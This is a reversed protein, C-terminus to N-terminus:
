RPYGTPSRTPKEGKVQIDGNAESMDGLGLAVGNGVTWAAGMCNVSAAAYKILMMVEKRIYSRYEDGVTEGNLNYDWYGDGLNPEFAVVEGCDTGTCQWSPANCNSAPAAPM